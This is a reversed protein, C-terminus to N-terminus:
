IKYKELYAIANTMSVKSEKFLGLATNCNDCLLGRVKQTKHCHDISCNKGVLLSVCIACNGKQHKLLQYYRESTIGHKKLSRKFNSEKHTRNYYVRASAQYRTQNERYHVRRKVKEAEQNRMYLQNKYVAVCKKCMASNGNDVAVRKPFHSLDLNEDCVSCLKMYTWVINEGMFILPHRASTPSNYEIKNLSM